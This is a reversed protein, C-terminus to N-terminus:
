ADLYRRVRENPIRAVLLLYAPVLLPRVVFTDLLVGFALAFGLQRMQALQGAITLSLFTGAMIFGCSSIIPGTRTLAAAIGGEAGLQQQEEHVRTVLLINYDEGVAILLTFLFLPVTWDLGPFGAGDLAQFLLVTVGLTALYSGLVTLVLYVTLVVRRLLVILITVVSVVVLVNIRTRDRAGVTKLDRLSPTSGSLNLDSGSKLDDSLLGHLRGEMRDLVDLAEESFPDLSLELEFRAVHGALGPSSSVFYEEAIRRLAGAAVLRGTLNRDAQPPAQPNVGLPASLSRINAIQLAQRDEYARDTLEQLASFGAPTRFDISRNDILLNVPGVAGPPFHRELLAMGRASAATRPLNGVLDYNLRNYNVVGFVAPPAMAAATVLWFVGPRRAIAGAIRGWLEQLRDRHSHAEPVRCGASPAARQPWFAATGILRLLAPTLTLVALLMVLLSFAIAIGAEHFKGFEAFSLMGVGAIETAASAAIAAGVRALANRVGGALDNQPVLEERFRAILFLGYDIGSAYVVVTSYAEVGQFLGIVQARALIALAKLAVDMAFFLTVLPILALLPARFVLLTLGAALAITAVQIAAASTEGAVGIDRGVVASGTTEISLGSPISNQRRLEDFLSEVAAIAPRNARSAFDNSMELMVLTSQRDRSILLAGVGKDDFARIRSIVPGESSQPTHDDPPGGGDAPAGAIERLRPKVSNKIFELDASQLGDASERSFVIVISSSILDHPFAQNFLRDARRSPSDAPLFSFQGDEAVEEWPPAVSRLVAFVALWAALIVIWWRSVIQGLIWFM